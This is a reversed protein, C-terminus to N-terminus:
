RVFFSLIVCVIGMMVSICGGFKRMIIWWAKIRIEGDVEVYCRIQQAALKNMLKDCFLDITGLLIILMGAVTMGPEWEYPNARRYEMDQWVIALSAIMDAPYDPSPRESVSELFSREPEGTEEADGQENASTMEQWLVSDESFTYIGFRRGDPFTVYGDMAYEIGFVTDAREFLYVEDQYELRGGDRMWMEEGVAARDSETREYLANKDDSADPVREVTFRINEGDDETEARFKYGYSEGTQVDETYFVKHYIGLCITLVVVPIWVALMKASTSKALRDFLKM